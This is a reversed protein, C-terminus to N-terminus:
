AFGRITWTKVETTTHIFNSSEQFWIISFLMQKEILHCLIITAAKSDLKLDVTHNMSAQFFNTIAPHAM